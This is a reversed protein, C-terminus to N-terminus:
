LKSLILMSENTDITCTCTNRDDDTCLKMDNEFDDVVSYYEHEEEVGGGREAENAECTQSWVSTFSSWTMGDTVLEIDSTSPANHLEAVFDALPSLIKVSKPVKDIAHELIYQPV